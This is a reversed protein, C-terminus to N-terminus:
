SLWSLAFFGSLLALCALTVLVFKMSPAIETATAVVDSPDGPVSSSFCWFLWAFSGVTELMAIIVIVLLWPATRAAVFGGAFIRRARSQLYKM